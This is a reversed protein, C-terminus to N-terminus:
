KKMLTMVLVIALIGIAALAIFNSNDSGAVTGPKPATATQASVKTPMVSALMTDVIKTFSAFPDNSSAAPVATQPTLTTISQNAQLQASILKQNQQLIGEDTVVKKIVNPFMMYAGGNGAKTGFGYKVEGAAEQKKYQEETAAGMPVMGNFIIFPEKFTNDKMLMFFYPYDKVQNYIDKNMYTAKDVSSVFVKPFAKNLLNEAVDSLAYIQGLYPIKKLLSDTVQIAQDSM